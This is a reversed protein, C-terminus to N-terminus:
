VPKPMPNYVNSNLAFYSCFDIGYRSSVAAFDVTASCMLTMIVDRRLM